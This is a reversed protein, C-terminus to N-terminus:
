EKTNFLIDMFKKFHDASMKPAKENFETLIKEIASEPYRLYLWFDEM